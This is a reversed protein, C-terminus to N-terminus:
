KVPQWAVVTLPGYIVPICKGAKTDIVYKLGDCGGIMISMTTFRGDMFVQATEVYRLPQHDGGCKKCKYRDLYKMTNPKYDFSGCNTCNITM